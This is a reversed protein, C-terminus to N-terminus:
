LAEGGWGAAGSTLEPASESMGTATSATESWDYGSIRECQGAVRMVPPLGHGPSNEDGACRAAEAAFGRFPQRAVPIAHEGRHAVDGAAIAAVGVRQSALFYADHLEVNGIVARDIAGNSRDEGLGALYVHQDVVGANRQDAHGFGQRGILRLRDEVGVDDSRLTVRATSGEIRRSRSPRMILMPETRPRTVNGKTPM